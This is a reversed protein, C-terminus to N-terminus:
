RSFGSLLLKNQLVLQACTQKVHMASNKMDTRNEMVFNQLEYTKTFVSTARETNYPKPSLSVSSKDDLYRITNDNKQYFIGGRGHEANICHKTVYDTGYYKKDEDTLPMACKFIPQYVIFRNPSANIDSVVPHKTKNRGASITASAVEFTSYSIKSINPFGLRNSVLGLESASTFVYDDLILQFVSPSQMFLPTNAGCFGLGKGIGDVREIMLMRDKVGVRDAIYFKPAIESDLKKTLMLQGLWMGVRVKDFWDLLINLDSANVPKGNMINTIITKSVAEMKAYDSNCSTCAPFVLQKFPIQMDTVGSLDCVSNYRGTMKSLWQPIVHEKNKDEPTKGCFICKKAM